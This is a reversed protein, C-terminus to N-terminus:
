SRRRRTALGALTLGVLMGTSPEPVATATLSGRLEGGNFSGSHINLYLEGNILDDVLDLNNAFSVTGTVRGSTAANAIETNINSVASDAFSNLNFVIPGTQNFPDGAVSPLHLHIGSAAATFLGGNLGQFEFDFNLLNTQQDFVLGAGVEGGIATSTASTATNPGVENGPLLGTGGNGAFDFEITQGVAVAASLLCAAMAVAQISTSITRRM